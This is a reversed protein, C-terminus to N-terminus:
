FTSRAGAEGGGSSGAAQLPSRQGARQLAGYLRRAATWNSAHEALDNSIWTSAATLLVPLFATGPTGISRMLAATPLRSCPIGKAGHPCPRRNHGPRKPEGTARSGCITQCGCNSPSLGLTVLLDARAIELRRATDLRGPAGPQPAGPRELRHWFGERCDKLAHPM